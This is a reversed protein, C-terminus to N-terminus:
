LYSASTSNIQRYNKQIWNDYWLKIFFRYSATSRLHILVLSKYKYIFRLLKDEVSSFPFNQM